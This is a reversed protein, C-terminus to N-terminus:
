KESLVIDYLVALTEAPASTEGLAEDSLVAKERITVSSSLWDISPSLESFMTWGDAVAAECCVDCVM